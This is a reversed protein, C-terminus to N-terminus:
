PAVDGALRSTGLRSPDAIAVAGLGVSCVIPVTLLALAVTVGIALSTVVTRRPACSRLWGLVSPLSAALASLWRRASQAEKAAPTSSPRIYESLSQRWDDDRNHEDVDLWADPEDEAWSSSRAHRARWHPPDDRFSVPDTPQRTHSGFLQRLAQEVVRGITNAVAHAIGSHLQSALSDLNCRLEGLRESLSLVPPGTSRDFSTM